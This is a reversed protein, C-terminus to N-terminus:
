DISFSLMYKSSYDDHKAKPPRDAKTSLLARCFKEAHERLGPLDSNSVVVDYKYDNVREDGVVASVGSREVLVAYSDPYKTRLREIVSPERADVMIIANDYKSPVSEDIVECTRSFPIDNFRELASNITIMLKRLEPTKKHIDIGAEDLLHRTLEVYSYRKYYSRGFEMVFNGSRLTDNVMECFTDKGSGSFGNTIVVFKRQVKGKSVPKQFQKAYSLQASMLPTITDGFYWLEDCYCEILLKDANLDNTREGSDSEGSFTLLLAQSFVPIFGRNIVCKGYEKALKVNEMADDSYPFCVFVVKKDM